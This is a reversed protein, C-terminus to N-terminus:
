DEEAYNTGILKNKLKLGGVLPNFAAEDKLQILIAGKEGHIGYIAMAISKQSFSICKIKDDNLLEDVFRKVSDSSIIDLKYFFKGNVVYMPSYPNNNRLGLTGIEQIDSKMFKSTDIFIQTKLSDIIGNLKEDCISDNDQSRSTVCASSAM